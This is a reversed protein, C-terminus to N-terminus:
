SSGSQKNVGHIKVAIFVEGQFIDLGKSLVVKAILIKGQEFNM